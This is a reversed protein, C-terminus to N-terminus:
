WSVLYDFGKRVSCFTCDDMEVQMPDARRLPRKGADAFQAYCVPCLTIIDPKRLGLAIAIARDVERQHRADIRALYRGIRSGDITYLHECMVVSERDLAAIGILEVHGYHYRNGKNETIACIIINGDADIRRSDSVILVPRIGGIENGYRESKGKSLDAIYIEGRKLGHTMEKGKEKEFPFQYILYFYFSQHAPRGKAFLSRSIVEV